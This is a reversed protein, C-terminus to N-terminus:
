KEHTNVMYELSGPKQYGEFHYNMYKDLIGLINWQEKESISLNTIKNIEWSSFKHLTKQIGADVGSTNSRCESCYFGGDTISFYWKSKTEASGCSLCTKLVLQYGNINLFALVFYIYLNIYNKKVEDLEKLIRLLLNFLAVSTEGGSESKLILETIAFGVILKNFDEKIYRNPNIVDCQSLVFLDKDEKYYFVISIYNLEELTGTFKSKPNKAGKAILSIKGFKPTQLRIIRSTEGYDISKLIIGETKRLGMNLLLM